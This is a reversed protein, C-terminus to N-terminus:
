RGKSGKFTWARNASFNWLLVVATAAVQALLFHLGAASVLVWVIVVNLVAGIAAVTLFMPVAQLHPRRSDFTFTYNLTYNVAAGAAFGITTAFPVPALQSYVLLMLVAYHVGTGIAGVFAFALFQRILV